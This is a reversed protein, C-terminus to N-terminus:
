GNNNEWPRFRDIRRTLVRIYERMITHQDVLLLRDEKLLNSFGTHVLFDKLKNAKEELEKREDVVRQQWDHFVRAPQPITEAVQEPSPGM